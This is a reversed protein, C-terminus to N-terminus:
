YQITTRLFLFIIISLEFWFSQRHTNKKCLPQMFSVQWCYDIEDTIDAFTFNRAYRLPNLIFEPYFIMVDIMNHDTYISLEPNDDLNVTGILLQNNSKYAETLNAFMSFVLPAYRSRKTYFGVVAMEHKTIEEQFNQVDLQFSSEESTANVTTSALAFLLSFMRALSAGECWHCNPFDTLSGCASQDVFSCLWDFVFLLFGFNPRAMTCTYRTRQKQSTQSTM